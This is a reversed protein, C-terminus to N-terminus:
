TINEFTLRYQFNPGLLLWFVKIFKFSKQTNTYNLRNNTLFAFSKGATWFV